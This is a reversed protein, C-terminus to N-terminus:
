NIKVCNETSSWAWRGDFFREDRITQKIKLESLLEQVDAMCGRPLSIHSPHDEGCAIIRPKDYTPLRM